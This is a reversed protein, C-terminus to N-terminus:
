WRDGRNWWWKDVVELIWRVLAVVSFAVVFLALGCPLWSGPIKALAEILAWTKEMLNEKRGCSGCTDGTDEEENSKM